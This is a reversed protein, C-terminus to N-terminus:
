RPSNCIEILTFQDGQKNYVFTVMEGAKFEKLTVPRNNLRFKTSEQVTYNWDKGKDDTIVIFSTDTNKVKGTALGANRYAGEQHLVALAQFQDGSKDALVMVPSGVKIDTLRAEPGQSCIIMAKDALRFTWDKGNEDTLVFQNGNASKLTGKTIHSAMVSSATLLLAVVVVLAVLGRLTRQM